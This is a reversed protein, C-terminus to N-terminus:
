IKKKLFYRQHGAPCDDLVGFIEYGHGVYFDKAQFDFTDLHILSCGAAKAEKEAAALLQSGLGSGRADKSVWLIEVFLCNWFYVQGLIGGLIEGREDVAVKDIRMSDMDAGTEGPKGPVQEANYAMLSALVFASERKDQCARITIKGRDNKEMNKARRM